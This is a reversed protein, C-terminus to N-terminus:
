QSWAASGAAVDTLQWRADQQGFGVVWLEGRAGTALMYEGRVAGPTLLPRVDLLRDGALETIPFRSGDITIRRIVREPLATDTLGRPVEEDIRLTRHDPLWVVGIINRDARLPWALPYSTASRPDFIRLPLGVSLESEDSRGQLRGTFALYKGDPSWAVQGALVGPPCRVQGAQVGYAADARLSLLCVGFSVADCGSGVLMAVNHGDPSASVGAIYGKGATLYLAVAAGTDIDISRLAYQNEIRQCADGPQDYDIVLVHGSDASWAVSGPNAPAVNGPPPYITRLGKDQDYVQVDHSTDTDRRLLLKKSDPSWALSSYFVGSQQGTTIQVPNAGDGGVTMVNGDPTTFAVRGLDHPRDAFLLKTEAPNWVVTLGEPHVYGRGALHAIDSGQVRQMGDVFVLLKYPLCDIALSGEEYSIHVKLCGGQTNVEGWQGAAVKDLLSQDPVLVRPTSEAAPVGGTAPFVTASDGVPSPSSAAAQAISSPQVAPTPTAAAAQSGSLPTAAVAPPTAASGTVPAAPASAATGAVPTFQGPKAASSGGGTCASLGFLAICLALAFPHARRIVTMDAFRSM